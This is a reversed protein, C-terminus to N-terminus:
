LLDSLCNSAYTVSQGAEWRTTVVVYSSRLDSPRQLIFGSQAEAALIICSRGVGAGEDSGGIGPDDGTLGDLASLAISVALAAATLM